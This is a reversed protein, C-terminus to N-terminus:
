CNGTNVMRNFIQICNFLGELMSELDLVIGDVYKDGISSSVYKKALFILYNNILYNLNCSLPDCIM